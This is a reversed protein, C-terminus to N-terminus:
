NLSAPNHVLMDGVRHIIGNSIIDSVLKVSNVECLYESYVKQLDNEDFEHNSLREAFVRWTEAFEEPTGSLKSHPAVGIDMFKDRTHNYARIGVWPEKADNATLSVVTYIFDSPVSLRRLAEFMVWWRKIADDYDQLRCQAVQEM